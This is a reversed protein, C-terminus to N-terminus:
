LVGRTAGGDVMVTAGTIYGAQESALFAVVAAFEDPEGYRGLPIAQEADRRVQDLSAGTTRARAEDLERVRDTAIRGPCVQNVTIRASALENALSKSLGAIGIRVSNSLILVDIPQRVTISSLLLVRGRGSQELHPLAARILRVASLLNLEFARQWAADDVSRFTGPAPGGANTVLVDLRGLRSVTTEVARQLDAPATVDAAFGLTRVGTEDAIKRAATEAAGQNRSFLAVSAGERALARASAFGLGRSGAAVLAVREELGFNM